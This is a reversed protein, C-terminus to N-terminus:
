DLLWEHQPSFQSVLMRIKEMRKAIASLWKSVEIEDKQVLGLKSYSSSSSEHRQIWEHPDIIDEGVEEGSDKLKFSIVDDLEEIICKLKGEVHDKLYEPNPYAELQLVGNMITIESKIHECKFKVLCKEIKETKYEYEVKRIRWEIDYLQKMIRVPCEDLNETVRDGERNESAEQMCSNAM